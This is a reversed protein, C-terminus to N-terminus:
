KSLKAALLELINLVAVQEVIKKYEGIRGVLLIRHPSLNVIELLFEDTGGVINVHQYEVKEILEAREQVFLGEALLM